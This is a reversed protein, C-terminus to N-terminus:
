AHAALAPRPPKPLCPWPKREAIQPFRCPKQEDPLAIQPTDDVTTPVFAARAVPPHAIALLAITIMASACLAVSRGALSQISM